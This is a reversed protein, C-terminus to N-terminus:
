ALASARPEGLVIVGRVAHFSFLASANADKRFDRSAASGVVPSLANGAASWALISAKCADRAVSFAVSEPMRAFAVTEAGTTFAASKVLGRDCKRKKAACRVSPRWWQSPSPKWQYREPERSKRWWSPVHCWQDMRPPM